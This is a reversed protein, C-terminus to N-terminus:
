TCLYFFCYKSFCKLLFNISVYKKKAEESKWGNDESFHTDKFVDLLSFHKEPM